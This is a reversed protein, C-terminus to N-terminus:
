YGRQGIWTLVADVRKEALTISSELGFRPSLFDLGTRDPSFYQAARERLTLPCATDSMWERVMRHATQRGVQSALAFMVSEATLAEQNEMVREAMMEEQVQLTSMVRYLHRLASYALISVSAVTLNELRNKAVEREHLIIMTQWHNAGRTRAESALTQIMSCTLPNVKQPMTSSGVAGINNSERVEGVESFQLTYLDVAVKEVSAAVSLAWSLYEAVTDRVNHWAVIPAGIKLRDCMRACVEEGRPGWGGFTGVAGGVQGVLLRPLLDQLREWHRYFMPILVAMKYGFTIPVAYQGNTRACCPIGRYTKALNTLLAIFEDLTNTFLDVTAVLQLIQATDTVDQSTVGWHLYEGAEGLQHAMIEVFRMIPNGVADWQHSEEIVSAIITPTLVFEKINYAATEPIIQLEGLTQSLAVEVAWWYRVTSEDSFVQAVEVDVYADLLVM